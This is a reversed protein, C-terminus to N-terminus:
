ASRRNRPMRGEWWPAQPDALPDPLTRSLYEEDARTVVRRLSPRARKPLCAMAIELNGRPGPGCCEPESCPNSAPRYVGGRRALQEWRRLQRSVFGPVLM